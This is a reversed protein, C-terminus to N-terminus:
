KHTEWTHPLIKRLATDIHTYDMSAHILHTDFWENREDIPITWFMDWRFRMPSLGEACYDAATGGVDMYALTKDLLKKLDEFAAAPMQM